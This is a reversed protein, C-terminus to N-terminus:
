EKVELDLPKIVNPKAWDMYNGYIQMFDWLQFESKGEEDVKPFHPEFPKLGHKRRYENFDDDKHYYIEKGYDTLKVKICDNLNITTKGNQAVSPLDKIYAEFRKGDDYSCFIGKLGDSNCDEITELVAERSITDESTKSQQSFLREFISLPIKTPIAKVTPANDIMKAILERSDLKDRWVHEMLEDADILRM